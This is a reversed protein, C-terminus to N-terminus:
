TARLASSVTLRSARVAPLLGGLIAVAIAWSAAIGFMLPSVVFNFLYDELGGLVGDYLGWAIAAGILAGTVSLVSAELLISFAVPVGGYGLARLTAIERARTEVVDYMTNFCGLLAGIALIIGVGYILANYFAARDANVKANWAALSMVDVSLAPNGAVEKDLASLGDPSKMRALITNYSNHRMVQLVTETDGVLASDLVDDTAFMGVIPWQGDPMIVKDGVTMGAFKSKLLQGVILERTGPRLMRGALIRFRPRLAAGMRGFTTLRVWGAVGAQNSQVQLETLFGPDAMPSGDAAKAIGQANLIVRMQDRPISSSEERLSGHSAFVALGPDRAAAYARQLGQTVSLMSLLVAIVCAMGVVIVLSQWIRRPITACNLLTLVVIQRLMTM